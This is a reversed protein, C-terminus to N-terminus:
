GKYRTLDRRRRSLHRGCLNRDGSCVYVRGGDRQVKTLCSAERHEGPRRRKRAYLRWGWRHGRAAAGLLGTFYFLSLKAFGPTVSVEVRVALACWHFLPFYSLRLVGFLRKKISQM